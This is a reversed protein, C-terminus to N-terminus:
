AQFARSGASMVSEPIAVTGDCLVSEIELTDGTDSKWCDHERHLEVVDNRHPIAVRLRNRGAALLLCDVRTGSPYCLILHM